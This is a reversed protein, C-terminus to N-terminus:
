GPSKPFSAAQGSRKGVYLDGQGATVIALYKGDPSVAAMTVAPLSTPQLPRRRRHVRTSPSAPDCRQSTFVGTRGVLPVVSGILGQM